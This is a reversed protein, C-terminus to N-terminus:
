VRIGEAEPFYMPQLHVLPDFTYTLCLTSCARNLPSYAPPSTLTAQREVHKLGAERFFAGVWAQLHACTCALPSTPCTHPCAHAAVLKFTSCASCFTDLGLMFQMYQM